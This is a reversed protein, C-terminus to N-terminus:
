RGRRRKTAGREVEAEAEALREQWPALEGDERAEEAVWEYIARVADYLDRPIPADVDLEVLARALPVDRRMPVQKRRAIALIEQAVEGRGKAVLRPVPDKDPDFRLACAIETPNRAVIDAGGDELGRLMRNQKMEGWAEKRRRKIDPDGERNKYERKKETKSMRQEKAFQMQQWPVDVLGVFLFGAATWAIVELLVQVTVAVSSALPAGALDLLADLRGRVVVLAIVTLLGVKVVSKLLDVYTRAKFFLRQLGKVPDLNELKPKLKDVAFLPKIQLLPVLVGVAFVAVLLPLLVQFSGAVAALLLACADHPDPTEHVATRYLEVASACFWAAMSSATAALVGAGVTVVLASTLDRSWAVNGKKRAERLKHDSAEETREESSEESM